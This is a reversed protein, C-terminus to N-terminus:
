AEGILGDPNYSHTSYSPGIIELRRPRVWDLLAELDRNTLHDAFPLQTVACQSGGSLYHQAPSGPIVGGAIIIRSRSDALLEKAVLESPTGPFMLRTSMVMVRASHHMGTVTPCAIGGPWARTLASTTNDVGVLEVPITENRMADGLVTLIHQARGCASATILLRGGLELTELVHMILQCRGEDEDIVMADSLVPGELYLVDPQLGEWGPVSTIGRGAPRNRWFLDGGWLIRGLNSDVLISVSGPLHGSELFSFSFEQTQWLHIQGHEVIQTPGDFACPFALRLARTASTEFVETFGKLMAPLAATRNRHAHTLVAFEPATTPSAGVDVLVQHPGISLLFACPDEESPGGIASWGMPQAITM